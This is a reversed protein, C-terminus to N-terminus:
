AAAAEGRQEVAQRLARRVWSSLTREDREAAEEIRVRLDAPIPVTIQVRKDQDM